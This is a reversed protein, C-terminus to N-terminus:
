NRTCCSTNRGVVAADVRRNRCRWGRRCVAEFTSPSKPRVARFIAAWAGNLESGVQDIVAQQALTDSLVPQGGYGGAAWDSLATIASEQPFSVLFAEFDAQFLRNLASQYSSQGLSVEVRNAVTGGNAEFTNLFGEVYSREGETNGTIIGINDYGQELTYTANGSTHVTDGVIPRWVWEDDSVDNPTM